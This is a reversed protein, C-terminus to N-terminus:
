YSHPGPLFSEVCYLLQLSCQRLIKIFKSSHLIQCVFNVKGGSSIATVNWFCEPSLDNIM